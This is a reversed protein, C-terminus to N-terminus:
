VSVCHDALATQTLLPSAITIICWVVVRSINLKEM